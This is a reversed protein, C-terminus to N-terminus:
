DGGGLARSRGARLRFAALILVANNSRSWGGLADPMWLKISQFCTQRKLTQSSQEGSCAIRGIRLV